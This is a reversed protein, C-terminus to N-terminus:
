GPRDPHRWGLAPDRAYPEFRWRRTSRCPWPASRRELALTAAPGNPSANSTSATGRRARDALRRPTERSGGDQLSLRGGPSMPRDGLWLVRAEIARATGPEADVAALVDGRSVDIEDALTLTISRGPGAEALDGDMTVIRRDPQDPGIPVAVVPDGPRVTGSAIQGTFGRFGDDPRNVWQVPM